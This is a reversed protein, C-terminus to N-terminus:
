RKRTIAHNFFKEQNYIDGIYVKMYLTSDVAVPMHIKTQKDFQIGQGRLDVVSIKDNQSKDNEDRDLDFIADSMKNFPSYQEVKMQVSSQESSNSKLHFGLIEAPNERIWQIFGEITGYSTTSAALNTTAANEVSSMAGTKICGQEATGFIGPCLLATHINAADSNVIKLNYVKAGPTKRFDRDGADMGARVKDLTGAEYGAKTKKGEFAALHRIAEQEALRIDKM